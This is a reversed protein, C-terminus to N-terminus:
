RENHNPDTPLVVINFFKVGYDYVEKGNPVPGLNQLDKKLQDMSDMLALKTTAKQLKNKIVGM